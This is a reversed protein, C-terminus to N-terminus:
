PKEEGDLNFNSKLSKDSVKIRHRLWKRLKHKPLLPSNCKFCWPKGNMKNGEDSGGCVPCVLKSAVEVKEMFKQNIKRLNPNLPYERRLDELDRQLKSKGRRFKKKRTQLSRVQKPIEEELSNLFEPNAKLFARKQASLNPSIDVNM